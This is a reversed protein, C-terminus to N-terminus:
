KGILKLFEARTKENDRFEGIMQSTVTVSNEKEVGRMMMCLHVAEIVVGVGKPQLLRNLESGIQRTMREQVQLRRAFLDVLRAVKSLGVIKGGPLYAVHAKGFFPVLHHECLSYFEINKVLVMEDYDEKFVANNLLKEPSLRYGQTLFLMANAYREPTKLLGDRNPDEGIQELLVRAAQKLKEPDRAAKPTAKKEVKKM